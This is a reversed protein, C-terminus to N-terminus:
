DKRVERVYTPDDFDMEELLKYAEDFIVKPIWSVYGDKYIVKYGLKEHKVQSEAWVIKTGIYKKM